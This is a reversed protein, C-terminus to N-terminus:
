PHGSGTTYAGSVKPSCKLDKGWSEEVIKGAEKATEWLEEQNPVATIEYTKGDLGLRAEWILINEQKFGDRAEQSTFETNAISALIGPMDVRRVTYKIVREESEPSGDDPHLFAGPKYNEELIFFKTPYKVVDLSCETYSYERDSYPDYTSFGYKMSPAKGWKKNPTFELDLEVLPLIVSKHPAAYQKNYSKGVLKGFLPSKYQKGTTFLLQWQGEGIGFLFKLCIKLRILFNKIKKM